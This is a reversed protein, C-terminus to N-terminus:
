VTERRTPGHHTVLSLLRERESAARQYEQLPCEALVAARVAEDGGLSLTNVLEDPNYAGWWLCLFVMVPDRPPQCSAEFADRVWPPAYANEGYGDVAYVGCPAGALVAHAHNLSQPQGIRVWGSPLDKEPSVTWRKARLADKNSVPAPVPPKM